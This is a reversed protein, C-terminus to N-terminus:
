AMGQGMTLSFAHGVNRALFQQRQRRLDNGRMDRAVRNGRAIHRVQDCRDLRLQDGATEMRDDTRGSWM